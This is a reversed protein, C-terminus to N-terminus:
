YLIWSPDKESALGIAGAQGRSLAEKCNGSHQFNLSDDYGLLGVGDARSM